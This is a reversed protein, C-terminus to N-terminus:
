NKGWGILAHNKRNPKKVMGNWKEQADGEEEDDDVEHFKLNKKKSSM